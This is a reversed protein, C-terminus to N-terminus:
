AHTQLQQRAVHNEGRLPAPRLTRLARALVTVAIEFSSKPATSTLSSTPPSVTDSADRL